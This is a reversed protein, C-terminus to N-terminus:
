SGLVVLRLSDIESVFNLFVLKQVGSSRDEVPSIIKGGINKLILSNNM